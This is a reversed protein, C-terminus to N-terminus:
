EKDPCLCTLRIPGLACAQMDKGQAELGAIREELLQRAAGERQSLATLRARNSTLSAIDRKIGKVELDTSQEKQQSDKLAEETLQLGARGWENM